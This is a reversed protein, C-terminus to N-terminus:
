IVNFNFDIDIIMQFFAVITIEIIWGCILVVARNDIQPFLTFRKSKIIM